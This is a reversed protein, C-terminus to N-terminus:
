RIDNNNSSRPYLIVMRSSHAYCTDSKREHFIIPFLLLLACKSHPIVARHVDHRLRAAVSQSVCSARRTIDPKAGSCRRPLLILLEVRCACSAMFRFKRVVCEHSARTVVFGMKSQPDIRNSLMRSVQSTLDARQSNPIRGRSPLPARRPINATQCAQHSRMM